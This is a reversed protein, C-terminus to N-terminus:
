AQQQVIYLVSRLLGYVAMGLVLLLTGWPRVGM